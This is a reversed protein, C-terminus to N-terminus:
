KTAAYMTGQLKWTSKDRTIRDLSLGPIKELEKFLASELVAAAPVNNLEWTGKQWPATVEVEDITKTEPPQWNRRFKASITQTLQYLQRDIKTATWLPAEERKDAPMPFSSRSIMFRPSKGFTANPRPLNLYDAGPQHAWQVSLSKKQCTLTDALWGNSSVPVDMMPPLCAQAQVLPMPASLWDKKFYREPHSQIELRRAEKTQFTRKTLEQIKHEQWAQYFSVGGWLLGLSVGAGLLLRLTKRRKEVDAYLTELKVTNKLLPGLLSLSEDPTACFTVKQKADFLDRLRGELHERAEQETAFLADGDAAIMNEKDDDSGSIGAVWWVASGKETELAFIGLLTSPTQVAAALAPVPPISSAAWSGLGYQHLRLAVCTYQTDALAEATARASLLMDKKSAAGGDRVQWFLGGAYTKKGIRLIDM